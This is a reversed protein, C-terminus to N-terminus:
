IKSGSIIDRKKKDSVTSRVGRIFKRHLTEEIKKERRDFYESAFISLSAALIGVGGFAFFVTFIKSLATTPYLDGYGITTLTIGTFYFSDVYNWKELNHYALTGILMMTVVTSVIIEIKTSTRM